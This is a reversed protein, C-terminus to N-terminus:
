KGAAAKLLRETWEKSVDAELYKRVAPQAAKRFVDIEAATLETVQMGKESLVKKASLDQERTMDRHIKKAIQVGEDVAKKEAPSLGNYFRDSVLYAHLSYVHGDLTVHKQSQYLSAALINTVGNEQGDATGQALAAPLEGWDIATPSGGLAKVLEIFVPSPQVRMKLGKMDEPTKIPRKNNTFHRIGNDAYGMLRIGTKKRMDEALDKGFQGDLVAYAHAHDNFIYPLGFINFTKYVGPIGGDHVVALEVSGLRLGEMMQQATGLQGAPYLEVKISGNTAKEVHEKFAVAAVHKPQDNKAPQFHAYKLVKAQQQAHAPLVGMALTTALAAATAALTRRKNANM